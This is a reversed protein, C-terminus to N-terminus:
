YIGQIIGKKIEEEASNEDLGSTVALYEARRLNFPVVNAEYNQILSDSISIKKTNNFIIFEM